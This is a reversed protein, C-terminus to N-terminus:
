ADGAPGSVAQRGDGHFRLLVSRISKTRGREEFIKRAEREWEDDSYVGPIILTLSELYPCCRLLGRPNSSTGSSGDFQTMTSVFMSKWDLYIAAALPDFLNPNPTTITLVRLTFASSLFTILSNIHVRVNFTATEINACSWKDLYFQSIEGKEKYRRPLCGNCSGDHENISIATLGAACIRSLLAASHNTLRIETISPLLLTLGSTGDNQIASVLSSHDIEHGDPYHEVQLYGLQPLCGIVEELIGDWSQLILQHIHSYTTGTDYVPVATRIYSSSGGVSMVRQGFLGYQRAVGSVDADIDLVKLKVGTIAIADYLAGYRDIPMSLDQTNSPPPHTYHVASKWKTQQYTHQSDFDNWYIQEPKKTDDAGKKESMEWLNQPEDDRVSTPRNWPEDGPLGNYPTVNTNWQNYPDNPPATEKSWSFKVVEDIRLTELIPFDKNTFLEELYPELPAEHGLTIHLSKWRTTSVRSALSCLQSLLPCHLHIHVPTTTELDTWSVMAELDDDELPWLVTSFSAFPKNSSSGRNRRRKGRVPGAQPAPQGKDDEQEEKKEKPEVAAENDKKSPPDESKSKAAWERARLLADRARIVGLFARDFLWPRKGDVYIHAWM